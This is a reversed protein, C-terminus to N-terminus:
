VLTFVATATLHPLFVLGIHFWDLWFRTLIAQFMTFRTLGLLLIGQQVVHRPDLTLYVPLVSEALAALFAIIKVLIASFSISLCHFVPFFDNFNYSGANAGSLM